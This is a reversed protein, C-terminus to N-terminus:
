FEEVVLRYAVPVATNAFATIDLRFVEFMNCVTPFIKVEFIPPDIPVVVIMVSVCSVVIPVSSRETILPTAVLVSRVLKIAEPVVFITEMEVVVFSINKAVTTFPFSAVVEVLVIFSFVKVERPFIKLVETFPTTEVELIMFVFSTEAIFPTRVDITFPCTAVVDTVLRKVKRAEDVFELKVTEVVVLPSTVNANVSVGVNVLTFV